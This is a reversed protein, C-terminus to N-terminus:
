IAEKMSGWCLFADCFFIYLLAITRGSLRSFGSGIALWINQPLNDIKILGYEKMQLIFVVM